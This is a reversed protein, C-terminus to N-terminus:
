EENFLTQGCVVIPGEDRLSELSSVPRGSERFPLGFNSEELELLRSSSRDSGTFSDWRSM